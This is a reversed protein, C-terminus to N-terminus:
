GFRRGFHMLLVSFFLAMRPYETFKVLVLSFIRKQNVGQLGPDMFFILREAPIKEKMTKSDCARGSGNFLSVFSSFLASSGM